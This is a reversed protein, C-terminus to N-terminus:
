VQHYKLKALEVEARLNIEDLVDKLGPDESFEPRQQILRKLALLSNQVNRGSLIAVKLKELEDLVDRGHIVAQKRKARPDVTDVSQLALLADIDSLPKSQTVSATEVKSDELEAAFASGSKRKKSSKSTSSSSVNNSPTVRM